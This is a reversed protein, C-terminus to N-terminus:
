SDHIGRHMLVGFLHNIVRVSWISWPIWPSMRFVIPFFFRVHKSIVYHNAPLLIPCLSSSWCHQLLVVYMFMITFNQVHTTQGALIAHKSPIIAHIQSLWLKWVVYVHTGSRQAWLPSGNYICSLLLSGFWTISHFWRDMTTTVVLNCSLILLPRLALFTDLSMSPRLFGETVSWQSCKAM